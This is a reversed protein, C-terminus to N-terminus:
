KALILVTGAHGAVARGIGSRRRPGGCRRRNYHVTARRSRGRKSTGDLGIKVAIEVNRLRRDRVELRAARDDHRSRDGPDLCVLVQEVIRHGLAADMGARGRKRGM